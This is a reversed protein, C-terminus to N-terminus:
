EIEGKVTALEEEKIPKIFLMKILSAIMFIVLIAIVSGLAVVMYRVGDNGKAGSAFAMLLFSLLGIAAGWIIKLVAPAEDGIKKGKMCLASLVTVGNDASTSFSIFMIFLNIPILIKYLPLNQMFTWIGAYTGDKAIAGAIDAVGNLQWNMATSGFLSFWVIAFVSPMIWNVILFERITRGYSIQALFVSTVPAYAIWFAWTYITWWKVLREGGISGTDMMWLPFKQMWYGISSTATNMIYAASRGFIVVFIMLAVYFKFNLSAFFRIGKDVGSLSSSLYLITSFVMIIFMMTASRPINYINQLCVTVLGLLTGLTGVSGLALALVSICDVITAFVKNHSKEGFIPELTNSVALSKKRNFCTYAICVGCVGFVAYPVFSWEHFTRGLGFLVAEASGPEIQYGELEGWVSEMFIIPQSIGSSVITAGLGGTLTMAFWQWFPYKAKADSGGFRINGKKTFTMLLCLILVVLFILQFLWSLNTYSWNFAKQFNSILIQNNVLGIIGSGLVILFTPIFVSKRIGKDKM